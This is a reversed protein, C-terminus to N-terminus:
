PKIIHYFDFENNIILHHPPINSKIENNLECKKLEHKNQSNEFNMSICEEYDLCHTVCEFISSVMFSQIVHFNLRQKTGVKAALASGLTSISYFDTFLYWITM